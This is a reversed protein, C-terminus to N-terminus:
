LGLTFKIWHDPETEGASAYARGESKIKKLLDLQQPSLEVSLVALAQRDYDNLGTDQNPPDDKRMRWDGTATEEALLTSLAKEKDPSIAIGRAYAEGLFDVLYVPTRVRNSEEAFDRMNATGIIDAIGSDIRRQEVANFTEVADSIGADRYQTQVADLDRRLNERELLLHALVKAQDPNVHYREIIGPMRSLTVRRQSDEVYAALNEATISAVFDTWKEWRIAPAGGPTIAEAPPSKSRNISLPLTKPTASAAAVPAELSECATPDYRCWLLSGIVLLFLAAGATNFSKTKM